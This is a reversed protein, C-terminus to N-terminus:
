AYLENVKRFYADLNEWKANAPIDCGTSLMFNNYQKCANFVRDVEREIEQPSGNKFLVPDVNGMVIKDESFAPIMNQLEVANGFHFIDASLASLQHTMAGVANGCNHYVLVFGDDNVARFIKEVFPTSFRSALDPSLMGAVPEALIVGDAGAAKMAEIYHIIFQTTKELLLETNEEDDFCAYMLETMDFLRSALSYPGICGCLVPVDCIVQKASRVADIYLSCRGKELSPVVIDAAQEIDTIIGQVVVPVEDDSTRIAAGFAEAEVSLDMMNLSAGVHCRQLIAQMGKVQMQADSILEKVSIGLLQVSPFSLIPITKSKNELIRKVIPKMENEEIM